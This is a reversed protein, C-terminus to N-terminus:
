APRPNRSGRLPQSKGSLYAGLTLISPVRKVLALAAGAAAPRMAVHAFAAAAHLRPAFNRRWGARYASAIQDLEAASFGADARALLLGCLLWASQMAMSIGEAVIPHAEGAANGVAFIGRDCAARIGPRIPGAALWPGDRRAGALAARVGQCSELIHAFVAEGAKAKGATRRCEDLRDRRICCSLSVRGGDSHVMGGYGGPFAVLPMLDPPLGSGLFHAKFAFLDSARLPYHPAQTPLMGREWSGHAAIAIRARVRSSENGGPMSLDALISGHASTGLRTVALPQLVEAGAQAAAALLGTDFQERGRARGYANAEGALRPMAASLVTDAAYWGVRRVPPGAEALFAAAVGLERLLPLSTASIFEGCVKRRPFPSKEVLAASWGGRALLLASTAGAPGGGVVLADYSKM